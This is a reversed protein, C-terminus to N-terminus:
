CQTRAKAWREMGTESCRLRRGVRIVFPLREANKYIFDRSMALRRAAEEVTLYTDRSRAGPACSSVGRIRLRAREEMETLAGVLAPLEEPSTNAIVRALEDRLSSATLAGPGAVPDVGEPDVLGTAAVTAVHAGGHLTLTEDRDRASPV